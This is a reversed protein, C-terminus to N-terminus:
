LVVIDIRIYENIINLLIVLLYLIIVHKYRGFNRVFGREIKGVRFFCSFNINLIPVVIIIHTM